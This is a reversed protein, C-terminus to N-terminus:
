AGKMSAFIEAEKARFEAERGSWLGRRAEDQLAAFDKVTYRPASGQTPQMGGRSPPAPTPLRRPQGPQEAVRAPQSRLRELMLFDRYKFFIGAVRAADRAQYASTLSEQLPRGTEVTPRQLWAIFNPDSDQARWDQVNADLTREFENNSVTEVRDQIPQFQTRMDALQRALDANERAMRASNEALLKIEPGFEDYKSLDETQISGGAQSPAPAQSKLAEIEERLGAVIGNQHALLSNLRNNETKVQTVEARYMGQLVKYKHEWDEGGDQVRDQQAYPNFPQDDTLVDQVADAVVDQQAPESPEILTADASPLVDQDPQQGLAAIMENAKAEAAELRPDM